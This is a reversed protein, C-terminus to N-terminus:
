PWLGLEAQSAPVGGAGQLRGRGRFTVTSGMPLARWCVDVRWSPSLLAGAPSGQEWAPQALHNLHTLIRSCREQNNIGTDARSDM